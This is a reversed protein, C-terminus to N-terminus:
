MKISKNLVEESYISNKISLVEKEKLLSGRLMAVLLSDDRSINRITKGKSIRVGGVLYYNDVGFCDDLQKVFNNDINEEVIEIDNYSDLINGNIIYDDVMNDPILFKNPVIIRKIVEKGNSYDMGINMSLIIKKLVILADYSEVISIFLNLSINNEIMLDLIYVKDIHGLLYVFINRDINYYRLIAISNKLERCDKFLVEDDFYENRLYNKLVEKNAKVFLVDKDLSEIHRKLTSPKLIKKRILDEIIDLCEIDILQFVDYYSNFMDYCSINCYEMVNIIREVLLDDLLELDKIKDIDVSKYDIGKNFLYRRIYSCEYEKEISNLENDTEENKRTINDQLLSLYEPFFELDYYDINIEISNEFVGRSLERVFNNRDKVSEIYSKNFSKLKKLYDILSNIDFGLSKSYCEFYEKKSMKKAKISMDYYNKLILLGELNALAPSINYNLMEPTLRLDKFEKLEAVKEKKEKMYECIKQLKDIDEKTGLKNLNMQKLYYDIKELTIDKNTIFLLAKFFDENNISIATKRIDFVNLRKNFSPVRPCYDIIKELLPIIVKEDEIRKGLKTVSADYAEIAAKLEENRKGM